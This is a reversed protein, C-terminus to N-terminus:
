AAVKATFGFRNLLTFFGMIVLAVVFTWTRIHILFLFFPFAAKADIIFFRASRASERWHAGARPQGAM